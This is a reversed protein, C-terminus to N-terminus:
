AMRGRCEVFQAQDTGDALLRERQARGLPRRQPEGDLGRRRQWGEGGGHLDGGVADDDLGQGVRGAVAAAVGDGGGQRRIGPCEGDLDVVTSPRHFAPTPIDLMRSRAASIPPDISTPGPSVPPRTRARSGNDTQSIRRGLAAM